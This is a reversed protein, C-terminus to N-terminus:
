GAGRRARSGTQRLEGVVSASAECGGAGSVTGGDALGRDGGTRGHGPNRASLEAVGDADINAGRSRRGRPLTSGGSTASVPAVRRATDRAAPRPNRAGISAWAGNRHSSISPMARPEPSSRSSSRRSWARASTRRASLVCGTAGLGLARGERETAACPSRRRARRGSRRGPGKTSANPTTTRWYGFPAGAQRM